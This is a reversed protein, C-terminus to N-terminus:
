QDLWSKSITTLNDCNVACTGPVGDSPDVNVEVPTGRITSTLPAVTVDTRVPIATVRTVLVVPRRGIPDPADAWWVEGRNM